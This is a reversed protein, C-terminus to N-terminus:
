EVGVLSRDSANLWISCIIRATYLSNICSLYSSCLPTFSIAWALCQAGAPVGVDNRRQFYTSIIITAVDSLTYVVDICRRDVGTTGVDFNSKTQVFTPRYAVYMLSCCVRLMSTM